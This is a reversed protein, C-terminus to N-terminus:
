NNEISDLWAQIWLQRLLMAEELTFAEGDVIIGMTLKGSCHSMGVGFLTKTRLPPFGAFSEVHVDGVKFSGAKSEFHKRFRGFSDGMNTLIGTALCRKRRILWEAIRPYSALLGFIEVFDLGLRYKRIANIQLRVSKLLGVFHHCDKLAAVVFGFGIRNTAPARSDSLTRLDTPVMIRIRQNPPVAGHSQNWAALVQMMRAIASDNFTSLSELGIPQSSGVGNANSGETLVRLAFAAHVREIKETEERDFTHRFFHHQLQKSDGSSSSKPAAVPTPGLFHFHYAGVLKEWLTTSRSEESPKPRSFTGRTSLRDYAIKPLQPVCATDKTLQDYALFADRLFQRIGLGDSSAHHTEISLEATGENQHGWLRIGSEDSLDWTHPFPSEDWKCENWQWRVRPKEPLYWCKSGAESRILSLLMPHRALAIAISKELRMRDVTGVFGVVIRFRKPHTTTDDWLWFHEMPVLPFPFLDKAAVQNPDISIQPM